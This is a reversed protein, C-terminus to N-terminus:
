TPPNFGLGISITKELPVNELGPVLPTDAGLRHGIHSLLNAKVVV